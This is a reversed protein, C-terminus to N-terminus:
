MNPLQNLSATLLKFGQKSCYCTTPLSREFTSPARASILNRREAFRVLENLDAPADIRDVVPLRATRMLRCPKYQEHLLTVSLASECMAHRAWAAGM